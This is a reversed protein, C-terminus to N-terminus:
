PSQTITFGVGSCDGAFLGMLESREKGTENQNVSVQLSTEDIYAVSYWSCEIKTVPASDSSEYIVGSDMFHCYNTKCYDNEIKIWFNGQMLYYDPRIYKCEENDRGSFLSAGNIVVTDMGGYKNFHLVEKSLIPPICFGSPLGSSSSNKESSSSLDHEKLNNSGTVPSDTENAIFVCGFFVSCLFLLLYRM